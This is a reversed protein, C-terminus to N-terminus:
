WANPRPARVFPDGFRNISAVEDVPLRPPRGFRGKPYGIPICAVLTLDAPHGLVSRLDDTHDLIITTLTTGLGFNRAALMLNQVAPFVSGYWSATTRVPADAEPVGTAGVFVVAPTDAFHEALYQVSKYVGESLHEKSHPRLLTTERRWLEAIREISGRDDVVIFHWHQRDQGSPAMTAAEVVRWLVDRPVPTPELRRMARTTFLADEVTM